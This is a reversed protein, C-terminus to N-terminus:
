AGPSTRRWHTLCVDVDKARRHSVEMRAGHPLASKQKAYMRWVQTALPDKKKMAEPDQVEEDDEEEAGASGARGRPMLNGADEDSVTTDLASFVSGLDTGQSPARSVPAGYSGVQSLPAAQSEAYGNASSASPPFFGQLGSSEVPSLIDATSPPPQRYGQFPTPMPQGQMHQRAASPMSASAWSGEAYPQSSSSLQHSPSMLGPSQARSPAGSQVTSSSHQRSHAFHQQAPAYYRPGSPGAGAGAASASPDISAHWAQQNQRMSAENAQQRAESMQLAQSLLSMSPGVPLGNPGASLGALSAQPAGHMDAFPQQRAAGPPLASGGAGNAAKPFGWSNPFSSAAGGGYPMGEYGSLPTGNAHQGNPAQQQQQQQQFVADWSQMHPPGMASGGMASGSHLAPGAKSAAGANMYPHPPAAANGRASPNGPMGVEEAALALPV